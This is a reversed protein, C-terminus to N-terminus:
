GISPLGPLDWKGVWLAIGSCSYTAGNRIGAPQLKAALAPQSKAIVGRADDIHSSWLVEDIQRGDSLQGLFPTFDGLYGIEGEKVEFEPAGFCDTLAFSSPQKGALVYHGVPLRLVQVEYSSKNSVSGQEAYFLIERGGDRHGRALDRTMPDYRAIRVNASRGAAAPMTRRFALVVAGEGQGLSVPVDLAVKKGLYLVSDTVPADLRVAPDPTQDFSRPVVKGSPEREGLAADFYRARADDTMAAIRSREAPLPEIERWGRFGMCAQFLVSKSHGAVIAGVVMSRLVGGSGEGSGNSKGGGRLPDPQGNPLMYGAAVMQCAQWDDIYQAPTAGPRNYFRDARQDRAAATAVTEDNPASDKAPVAAAAGASLLGLGVLLILRM